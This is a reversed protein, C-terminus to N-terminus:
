RFDAGPRHHDAFCALFCAQFKDPLDYNDSVMFFGGIAILIWGIGRSSDNAVNVIGIAILLMQWSFIVDWTRDGM